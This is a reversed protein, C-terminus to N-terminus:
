KFKCLSKFEELAIAIKDFHNKRFIIRKKLNLEKQLIDSYFRKKRYKREENEKSFNHDIIKITKEEKTKILNLNKDKSCSNPAQNSIISNQTDIKKNEDVFSLSSQAKSCKNISQIRTNSILHNKNQLDVERSYINVNLNINVNKSKNEKEVYLNINNINCQSLFPNNFLEKKVQADFSIDKDRNEIKIEKIEHKKFLNEQKNTGINCKTEIYNLGETPSLIHNSIESKNKSFVIPEIKDNFLGKIVKFQMDLYDYSPKSKDINLKHM